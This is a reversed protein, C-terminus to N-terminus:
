STNCTVYKQIRHTSPTDQWPPKVTMEAPHPGGGRVLKPGPNTNIEQGSAERPSVGGGGVCVQRCLVWTAKAPTQTSVDRWNHGVRQSGVSQLRGPEETWLIRWTLICSHTAM